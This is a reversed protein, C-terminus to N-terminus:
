FRGLAALGGVDPQVWPALVLKPANPNASDDGDDYAVKGRYEFLYWAGTFLAGVVGGVFCADAAHAYQRGNDQADLRNDFSTNPAVFINHQKVALEGLVIGGGLGIITVAGGAYLPVRSKRHPKRPPPPVYAEEHKSHLDIIVPDLDLKKETEGGAEVAIDIDEKPQFGDAAITIKYAGPLLLLPEPLPAKGIEVGDLSVTAGEPTIALTVVGVKGSAADILGPLKKLTDARVGKPTAAVQKYGKIAAPFAGLKDDLAALAFVVNPDDGAEIAKGYAVVANEYIPKADDAKGKKALADAKSVLVQAATLWKKAVKPDKVIPPEAGPAPAAVAGQAPPPADPEMEVDPSGSGDGPAAAATGAFLLVCAGLALPLTRGM